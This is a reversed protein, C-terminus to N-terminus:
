LSLMGRCIHAFVLLRGVIRYVDAGACAGDAPALGCGQCMGRDLWAAVGQEARRTDSRTPAPRRLM